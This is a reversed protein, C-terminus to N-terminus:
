SVMALLTQLAEDAVKILKSSAQYCRQYQILNTYEEDISVGSESTKLTQMQTIALNSSEALNSQTNVDNALKSVIGTYSENFTNGNLLKSNMLDAIKNAIDGNSDSGDASAAIKRPDNVINENIKLTGNDYSDFFKLGSQALESMDTGTTHVSNVSTMLSNMIKDINDQIEPIKEEYTQAYAHLQGSKLTAALNGDKSVIQLKGDSSNASFEAHYFRDVALIGGVSIAVSGGSDYSISVNAITSVEDILKDRQDELDAASNGVTSAEFIQKNLDQISALDKNLTSTLSTFDKINTEKIENLNDYVSKVQTSLQSASSIVSNRLAISSPNVALNSWSNFFNTICSSIGNDSPENLVSQVQDLIESQKNTDYYQQNNSRIHNDAFTNRMRQVEAIKVGTGWVMGATVQPTENTLVVRRRSYDKNSANAVNNSTVDLAKQYAALSRAGIDFIRSLAM